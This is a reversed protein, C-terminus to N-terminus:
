YVRFADYRTVSLPALTRSPVVRPEGAGKSISGRTARWEALAGPERFLACGEGQRGNCWTDSAVAVVRYGAPIQTDDAPQTEM